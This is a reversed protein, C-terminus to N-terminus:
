VYSLHNNSCRCLHTFFSKCVFSFVSFCNPSLTALQWSAMLAMADEKIVVFISFRSMNTPHTMILPKRTVLFCFLSFFLVFFSQKQPVIETGLERSWTCLSLLGEIIM